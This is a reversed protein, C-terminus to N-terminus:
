PHSSLARQLKLFNGLLQSKLRKQHETGKVGFGDPERHWGRVMNWREVKVVAQRNEPCPPQPESLNLWEGWTVWRLRCGLSRVLGGGAREGRGVPQGWLKLSQM